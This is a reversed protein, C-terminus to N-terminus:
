FSIRLPQLSSRVMFIDIPGRLLRWGGNPLARRHHLVNRQATGTLKPPRASIFSLCVGILVFIFTVAILSLFSAEMALQMM